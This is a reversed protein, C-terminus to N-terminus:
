LDWPLEGSTGLFEGGNQSAGKPNSFFPKNILQMAEFIQIVRM